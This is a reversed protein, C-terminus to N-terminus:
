YGYYYLEARITDANSPNAPTGADINDPALVTPTGGNILNFVRVQDLPDDIDGIYLEAPVTISLWNDGRKQYSLDGSFRLRRPSTIDTPAHPNVTDMIFWNYGWEKVWTWWQLYQDNTMSFTLSLNPRFANGIKIQSAQASPTNSRLLGADLDGSYPPHDPLPFTAPYTPATM